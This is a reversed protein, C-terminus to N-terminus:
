EEPGDRFLNKARAAHKWDKFGKKWILDTPALKGKRALKRLERSSFPGFEKKGKRVYYKRDADDPEPAPPAGPSPFPALRPEPPPLPVQEVVTPPAAAADPVCM